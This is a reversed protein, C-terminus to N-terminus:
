HFRSCRLWGRVLDWFYQCSAQVPPELRVSGAGVHEVNALLRGQRLTAPYRDLDRLYPRIDPTVATPFSLLTGTEDWILTLGGCVDWFQQDMPLWRINCAQHQRSRADFVRWGDGARVIWLPLQGVGQAQALRYTPGDSRFDAPLGLDVVSRSSVSALALLGILSILALVATAAFLLRRRQRVLNILWIDRM